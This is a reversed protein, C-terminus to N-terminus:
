FNPPISKFKQHLSTESTFKNGAPCGTGTGHGFGTNYSAGNEAPTNQLAYQASFGIGTVTSVEFAYLLNGSAM